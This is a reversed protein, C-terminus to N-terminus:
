GDLLDKNEYINGIVKFFSSEWGGYNYSYPDDNLMPHYTWVDDYNNNTYKIEYLCGSQSEVIDGEYIEKGNKDKLGTYQQLEIDALHSANMPEIMTCEGFVAFGYYTLLTPEDSRYWCKNKKDWARFKIERM